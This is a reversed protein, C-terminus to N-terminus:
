VSGMRVPRWPGETSEKVAPPSGSLLRKARLASQDQNSSLPTHIDGKKPRVRYVDNALMMGLQVSPNRSRATAVSGTNTEGVHLRALGVDDTEGVRGRLVPASSAGPAGPGDSLDDGAGVGQSDVLVLKLNGSGGNGDLSAGAGSDVCDGAHVGLVISGDPADSFPIARGPSEEVELVGRHLEGVHM